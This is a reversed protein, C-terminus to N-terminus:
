ACKLGERRLRAREDEIRQRDAFSAKAGNLKEPFERGERRPHEAEDFDPAEWEIVELLHCYAAFLEEYTM